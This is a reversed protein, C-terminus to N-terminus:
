LDEFLVAVKASECLQSALMDIFERNSLFQTHPKSTFWGRERLIAVHDFAPAGAYPRIRFTVVTGQPVSPTSLDLDNRLSEVVEMPTITFRDKTM